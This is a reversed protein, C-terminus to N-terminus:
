SGRVIVAVRDRAALDAIVAADAQLVEVDLLWSSRDEARVPARSVVADITRPVTGTSPGGAAPSSQGSPSGTEASTADGTVEVITIRTGAPMPETPVRGAALKLGVHARGAAVPLDGVSRSGPLSGRPLDVVARRGILSDLRSAPLTDVQDPVSISAVAIDGHRLEEGRAVDRTMVLVSQSQSAQTWAFAGGLAGLVACLVGAVILMPSRRNPLATGRRPAGRHDPAPAQGADGGPRGGAGGRPASTRHGTRTSM